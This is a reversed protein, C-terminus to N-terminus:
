NGNEVIKQKLTVESDKTSSGCICFKLGPM